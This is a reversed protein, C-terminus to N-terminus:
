QDRQDGQQDRDAGHASDHATGDPTVEHGHELVGAHSQEGVTDEDTGPQREASGAADDSDEGRAGEDIRQNIRAFFSGVVAGMEDRQRDLFLLSIAGSLALAAAAALLGRLPTVLQVALWCAAFLGVRLVTYLLVAHRRRRQQGM